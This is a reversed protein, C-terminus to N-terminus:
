LLEDLLLDDVVITKENKNVAKVTEKTVPILVSSKDPKEIELGDSAPYNFVEKVTGISHGDTASIISMGELEFHYYEDDALEPLQSDHVCLVANRLPEVHEIDEYERFACSFGKQNGSINTITANLNVRRESSIIVPCPLPLRELTKGYATVACRGKLGVPKRIRGIATLDDNRDRGRSAPM